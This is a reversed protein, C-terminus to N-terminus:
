YIGVSRSPCSIRKVIERVTERVCMCVHVPYFTAFFNARTVKSIKCDRLLGAHKATQRIERSFRLVKVPIHETGTVGSVSGGIM